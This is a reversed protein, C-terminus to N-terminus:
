YWEVPTQNVLHFIGTMAPGAVLDHYQNADLFSSTQVIKGLPVPM